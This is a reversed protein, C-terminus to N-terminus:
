SGSTRASAPRAARCSSGPRSVVETPSVMRSATPSVTPSAAQSGPAPTMAALRRRSARSQVVSIGTVAAGLVAWGVPGAAMVVGTLLPPGASKQIAQSMGAVGLYAARAHEPALSVALEWSTVSRVLEALTVLVAAALLALSAGVAGGGTAGALILCCALLSVGYWVVARVARRPGETAASVRLQLVVVLVTNIALFAPVFAHPARTHGVLWLPLGVNLLSDDLCLPIDRLVFLLYGKDRWPNAVDAAHVVEVAATPRAVAASAPAASTAVATTSAGPERTRRVLVAALLYSLVNALVLARYAALTGVALGIAALGAGIAYGANASTRTLAQYTSRRDGAIRTAFLMELMKAAREALATAAVFPLLAAFGHCFMVASLAVMRVLHSGMLVTRAPVRAALWGALPSGAIGAIGAAGLLLGIQRADLGAVLAFYLVSGAAWVGSGTRDVFQAALMIRADRGGPPNRMQSWM